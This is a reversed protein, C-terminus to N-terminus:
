SHPGKLGDSLKARIAVWEEDQTIEICCLDRANLAKEIQEAENSMIGSLIVEGNPELFQSVESILPILVETLINAIIIDYKSDLGTLGDGSQVDVVSEVDNLQFNKLAIPIITEDLDIADVRKAGLKAATISLIGSGTGIDALVDNRKIAKELLGMSLRTTPHQGTGFAMGPDLRILVECQEPVIKAWTPAVIIRRGIKQPPFASRWKESWDVEQVAKLSISSQGPQLDWQPLQDLFRQVKRLREGVLDDMPFYSILKISPSAPNPNDQIEVGAGNLDFLQNAVAESAEQSITVTVQAWKM